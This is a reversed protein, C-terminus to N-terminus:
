KSTVTAQLHSPPLSHPEPVAWRHQSHPQCTSKKPQEEEKRTGTLSVIPLFAPRLRASFLQQPCAPRLDPNPVARHSSLSCNHATLSHDADPWGKAGVHDECSPSKLVVTLFASLPQYASIHGSQPCAGFLFILGLLSAQRGQMSGHM